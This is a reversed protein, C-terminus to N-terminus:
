KVEVPVKSSKKGVTVTITAKGPSKAEIRGAKDVNAVSPASSRYTVKAKIASAPAYTVTAYTSAGVALTRAVGSVKVTRVAPATAPKKALVRVTLTASKGSPAAVTIKAAGAKKARIKGTQSVTAVSKKSSAWTLKASNRSGDASYGFAALTITQGKVLRVAKQGAKVRAVAV